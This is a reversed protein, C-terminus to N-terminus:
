TKQEILDQNERRLNAISKELQDRTEKERNTMNQVTWEMEEYRRMMDSVHSKLRENELQLQKFQNQLEFKETSSAEL